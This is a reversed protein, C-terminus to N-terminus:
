NGKPEKYWLTLKNNVIYNLALILVANIIFGLFWEGEDVRRSGNIVRVIFLTVPWWGLFLWVKLFRNFM